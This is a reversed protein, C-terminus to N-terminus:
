GTCPTEEVFHKRMLKALWHLRRPIYVPQQQRQYKYFYCGVVILYAPAIQELTWPLGRFITLVTILGFLCGFSKLIDRLPKLEDRIISVLPLVLYFLFAPLGMIVLLVCVFGILLGITMREILTFGHSRHPAKFHPVKATVMMILVGTLLLSEFTARTVMSWSLSDSGIGTLALARCTFSILFFLGYCIPWLWLSQNRIEPRALGQDAGRKIWNALRLLIDRRSTTMVWIAAILYLPCIIQPVQLTRIPPLHYLHWYSSNITILMLAIGMDVILKSKAPNGVIWYAGIAYLYASIIAGYIGIHPLGTLPMSVFVLLSVLILIRGVLAAVLNGWITAITTKWGDQRDAECDEMDKHCERATIVFAGVISFMLAIRDPWALIAPTIAGTVFVAALSIIPVLPLKRMWSYTFGILARFLALTGLRWDYTFLITLMVAEVLWCAVTFRLFAKAHDFAFTNGKLVDHYRDIYNNIVMTACMCTFCDISFLWVMPDLHHLTLAFAAMSTMFGTLSPLVRLPKIWEILNKM